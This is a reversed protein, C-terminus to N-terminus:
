LYWFVNCTDLLINRRGDSVFQYNKFLYLSELHYKYVYKKSNQENMPIITKLNYIIQCDTLYFIQWYHPIPKYFTCVSEQCICEFLLSFVLKNEHLQFCLHSCWWTYILKLINKLNYICFIYRSKSYKWTQTSSREM